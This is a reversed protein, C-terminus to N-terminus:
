RIFFSGKIILNLIRSVTDVMFGGMVISGLLWGSFLILSNAIKGQSVKAVNNKTINGGAPKQSSNFISIYKFDMNTQFLKSFSFDYDIAKAPCKEICNGCKTCTLFINFDKEKNKTISNEDISMVSCSDACKGCGTCKDKDIKVKFLSIKNLISILAGFPCFSMCQVRKKTLFSFAIVTTSFILVSTIFAFFTSANIIPEYETILKWPCLWQCFIVSFTALSGLMVVFLIVFNFFRVKKEKDELKILPKKSILSFSEDWGGYFCVWSCWGRGLTLISIFIIALMSYFSAFHGTLRAPFILVKEFIYPFIIMPTVIHCFPTENLFIDKYQLAMSGRSEILLAIFSPFFCFAGAIFLFKRFHSIRNTFRLMFYFFTLYITTIWGGAIRIGKANYLLFFALLLFMIFTDFLISFFKKKDKTFINEM